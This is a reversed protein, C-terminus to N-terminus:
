VPAMPDAGYGPTRRSPSTTSRQTPSTPSTRTASKPSTPKSSPERHPESETKVSVGDRTRQLQRARILARQVKRYAELVENSWQSMSMGLPRRLRILLDELRAGADPIATRCLRDQLYRLLYKCGHKKGLKKHDLSPTVAWARGTLKSALEPGLLKRKHSPTKEWQLRVQRAYDGWTTPEGNWTAVDKFDKSLSMKLCTTSPWSTTGLLHRLDGCPHESALSTSRKLSARLLHRLDGCLHESVSYVIFDLYFVLALALASTWWLLTWPSWRTTVLITTPSPSRSPPLPSSFTSWTTWSGPTLRLESGTEDPEAVLTLYCGAGGILLYKNCKEIATCPM